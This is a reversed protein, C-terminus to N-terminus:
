ASESSRFPRDKPDIACRTSTDVHRLPHKRRTFRLVFRGARRASNKSRMCCSERMIAMSPPSNAPGLVGWFFSEVAVEAVEDEGGSRPPTIGRMPRLSYHNPPPTTIAKRDVLDADGGDPQVEDVVEVQQM